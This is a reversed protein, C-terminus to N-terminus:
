ESIILRQVASSKIGNLRLMYMGVPLNFQIDQINVGNTANVKRSDVIKGSIDYVDMSLQDLVGAWSVRINGQSPNPYVNLNMNPITEFGTEDLWCPTSPTAIKFAETITIKSGEALIFGNLLLMSIPFVVWLILTRQQRVLETLIRHAIARTEYWYKM